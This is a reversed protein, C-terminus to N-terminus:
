NKKASYDRAGFISSGVRISTAGKKIATEFDGSMGMSRDIKFGVRAEVVDALAQLKDFCSEDGARGITMVGKFELDPCSGVIFDVLAFVDEPKNYEVGSKTEELSTDVQVYVGLKDLGQRHQKAAQQLLTAVKATCVTEVVKLQRCGKVLSVAKNSQLPGIFHIGVNPPLLPSKGLTEQVYNEGFLVHGVDILSQM